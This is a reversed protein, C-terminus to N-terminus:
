SSKRGQPYEFERWDLSAKTPQNSTLIFRKYRDWPMRYSPLAILEFRNDRQKKNRFEWLTSGKRYRIEIEYQQRSRDGQAIYTLGRSPISFHSAEGWVKRTRLITGSRRLSSIMSFLLFNALSARLPGVDNRWRGWRWSPVVRSAGVVKSFLVSEM